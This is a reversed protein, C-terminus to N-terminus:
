AASVNETSRSGDDRPGGRWAVKASRAAAARGHV